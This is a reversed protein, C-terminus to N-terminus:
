FIIKSLQPYKELIQMQKFLNVVNWIISVALLIGTGSGLAGFCDAIAALIAVLISGVFVLPPIYQRLIRLILEKNRRVGQIGARSAILQEAIGEPGQGSVDVWLLGFIIALGILGISYLVMHLITMFIYYIDINGSFIMELMAPFNYEGMKFGPPSFFDYFVKYHFNQSFVMILSFIAAAFIIPINSVYLLRLPFGRSMAAQTFDIIIPVIVYMSELYCVLLFVGITVLISTAPVLMLLFEQNMYYNIIEGFAHIGRAVLSQSVNAAIFLSIASYIGYKTTLEDLYLLLISGLAIQTIVLMEMGPITPVRGGLVWIAAEVFCLVVAFGKAITSYKARDKPDALNLPIIKSGVFLQVLIYAVIIPSIGLALVSNLRSAFIISLIELEKARPAELNFGIPIVAGLVFYLIIVIATWFVREDLSLVRKPPKVSPLLRGLLEFIDYRYALIAMLISLFIVALFYSLMM